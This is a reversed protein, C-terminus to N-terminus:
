KINILHEYKGEVKKISLGKIFSVFIFIIMLYISVKIVQALPILLLDRPLCIIYQIITFIIVKKYVNAQKFYHFVRSLIFGLLFSIVVVMPLGGILFAEALYASGTGYGHLYGEYNIKIMLDTAFARGQENLLKPFIACLPEFLLYKVVNPAFENKFEIAMATVYYSVGQQKFFSVIPNENLIIKLIIELNLILNDRFFSVTLGIISIIVVIFYMSLFSIRNNFKYKYFLFVSLWFTFFYGRFGSLLLPITFFLFIFSIIMINRKSSESFFYLLFSIPTFFSIVRNIFGAKELYESSVYFGMYGYQFFFAFYQYIKYIYFPLSIFFILLFIKKYETDNQKLNTYKKNITKLGFYGGLIIFWYSLSISLITLRIVIDTLYFNAGMLFVYSLDELSGFIIIGGQFLTLTGIFILIPHWNKGFLIFFCILTAILNVIFFYKIVDLPLFFILIMNLSIFLFVFSLILYINYLKFLRM